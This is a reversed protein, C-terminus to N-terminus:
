VASGVGINAGWYVIIDGRAIPAYVFAEARAYREIEQPKAPPRKLENQALSYIESLGGLIQQGNRSLPDGEDPPKGGCGACLLAALALGAARCTPREFTTM